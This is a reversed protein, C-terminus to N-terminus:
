KNFPPCVCGDQNFRVGNAELVTQIKSLTSAKADEGGEIRSVTNPSMEAAEALDRVGWDLAVRAM